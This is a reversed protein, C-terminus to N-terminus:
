LYTRMRAKYLFKLSEILADLPSLCIAIVTHFFVTLKNKNRLGVVAMVVHYRFRVFIKERLTLLTFYTKKYAFLAKEGEIKNIGTSIKEYPHLYAVVYAKSLYGIKAGSQITNLMLYFEQGVEAEIFGGIQNICDRKYMFTPTGTIHRTLHYRMLRENSFDKIFSFERYDILKDSTDHLRLDTFCMDYDHEKMFRVQSCIKDPLYIDDDDLFTIYDGSAEQIGINRSM